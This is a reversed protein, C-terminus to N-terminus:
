PGRWSRLWAFKISGWLGACDRRVLGGDGGRVRSKKGANNEYNQVFIKKMSNVASCIAERMSPFISPSGLASTRSTELISSPRGWVSLKRELGLYSCYM